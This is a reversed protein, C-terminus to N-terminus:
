AAFRQQEAKWLAFEEGLARAVQPRALIRRHYASLAPWAGLDVRAYPAWNLVTACYADAVSYRELLHERDALHGALYGLRRGSKAEVWTRIAPDLTPDLLPVFLAKHLETGIFGLWQQLRSREIGDRPGLDAAPFRDVLYQLVAANETLRTAGDIELIPVQGMPHIAFFDGGDAMRKSKTDVQRYTIAAGAEYCAIRSALSCALPSFYLTLSSASSDTSPPAANPLM